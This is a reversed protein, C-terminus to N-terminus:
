YHLIYDNVLQLNRYQVLEATNFPVLQVITSFFHHSYQLIVPVTAAALSCVIHCHWFVESDCRSFSIHIALKLYNANVQM